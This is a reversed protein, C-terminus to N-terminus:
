AAKPPEPAVGLQKAYARIARRITDSMSLKETRACAELLALDEKDARFAKPDGSSRTNTYRM